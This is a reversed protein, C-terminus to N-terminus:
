FIEVCQNSGAATVATIQMQGKVLTSGALQLTNGAPILLGVPNAGAVPVTGMFSLRLATTAHDNNFIIATRYRNAALVVTQTPSVPVNANQTQTMSHNGPESLYRVGVLPDTADVVLMAAETASSNYIQWTGPWPLYINGPGVSVQFTKNSYSDPAAGLYPSLSRAQFEPAYFLVQDLQHLPTLITPVEVAHGFWKGGPLTIVNLHKGRAFRAALANPTLGRHESPASIVAGGAIGGGPGGGAFKPPPYSLGEPDIGTGGGGAM